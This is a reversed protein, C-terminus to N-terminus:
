AKIVRPPGLALLCETRTRLALTQRPYIRGSRRNKGIPKGILQLEECTSRIRTNRSVKPGCGSSPYETPPCDKVTKPPVRCGGNEFNVLKPLPPFDAKTRSHTRRARKDQSPAGRAADVIRGRGRDCWLRFLALLKFPTGAVMLIERKRRAFRIGDGFSGSRECGRYSLQYLLQSKVM